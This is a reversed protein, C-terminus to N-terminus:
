VEIIEYEVFLQFRLEPYDKFLKDELEAKSLANFYFVVSYSKFNKSIQETKIEGCIAGFKSEMDKKFDKIIHYHENDCNNQFMHLIYRLKLHIQGYVRNCKKYVYNVYNNRYRGQM